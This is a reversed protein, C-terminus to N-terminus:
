TSAKLEKSRLKDLRLKKRAAMVTDFKEFCALQVPTLKGEFEQALTDWQRIVILLHQASPSAEVDVLNTRFEELIVCEDSSLRTDEFQELFTCWIDMAFTHLNTPTQINSQHANQSSTTPTTPAM